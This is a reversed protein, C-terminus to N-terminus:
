TDKGRYRHAGGGGGGANSASHIWPKLHPLGPVEHDWRRSHEGERRDRAEAWCVGLDLQGQSALIATELPVM